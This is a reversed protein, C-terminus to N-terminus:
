LSVDKTALVYGFVRAEITYTGTTRDNLEVIYVQSNWNATDAWDSNGAIDEKDEDTKSYIIIDPSFEDEILPPDDDADVSPRKLGSFTITVIDIDLDEDYGKAANTISLTNLHTLTIYGKEGAINRYLRSSIDVIGVGTKSLSSIKMNVQKGADASTIAGKAFTVKDESTWIIDSKSFSVPKDFVLTITDTSKYENVGGNAYADLLSVQKVFWANIMVDSAPMTFSYHTKDVKTYEIQDTGDSVVFNADVDYDTDYDLEATVTEGAEAKEKVNVTVGDFSTKSVSNEDLGYFTLIKYVGDGDDKTVCGLLFVAFIIFVSFLSRRLL